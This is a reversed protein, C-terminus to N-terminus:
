STTLMMAVVVDLEVEKILGWSINKAKGRMSARAPVKAKKVTGSFSSPISPKPLLPLTIAWAVPPFPLLFM